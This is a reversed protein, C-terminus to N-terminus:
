QGQETPPQEPTETSSTPASTDSFLPGTRVAKKRTPSKPKLSGPLPRGRIIRIRESANDWVATLDRLARARTAKSALTNDDPCDNLVLAQSAAINRLAYAQSLGSNNNHKKVLAHSPPMAGNTEMSNQYALRPLVALSETAHLM